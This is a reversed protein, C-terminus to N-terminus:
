GHVTLLKRTKIDTAQIEEKPWRIIGTPYLLSKGLHLYRVTAAKRAVEQHNVNEQPIGLYKNSDIDAARQYHLGKLKSGRERKLIQGCKDLIVDSTMAMSGASTFRHTLTGSVGPM